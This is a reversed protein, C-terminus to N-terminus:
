EAAGVSSSPETELHGSPQSHHTDGARTTDVGLEDELCELTASLPDQDKTAMWSIAVILIPVVPCSVTCGKETREELLVADCRLTKADVPDARGFTLPERGDRPFHRRRESGTTWQM